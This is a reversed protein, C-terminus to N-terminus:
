TPVETPNTPGTRRRRQLAARRTDARKEAQAAVAAGGDSHGALHDALTAITPYQFLVLMSVERGLREVLQARVEAMLLSHGGLDFFNATRSVHELGLTEAWVEAVLEELGGEPAAYESGSEAVSVSPLPLAARDVKGNATVPLTSLIVFYAPVMYEPLRKRLEEALASANVADGHLTVHAVLRPDGPRVEPATVVAERVQPIAQLASEIEGLEIRFGRLKIQHDLRGLFNLAGDARVVARDQTRFLQGSGRFPDPVFQADTLEPRNLYGRAVNHGGIYLEGSVGVPCPQGYEDLVYTQTNAIPHGIPVPGPPDDLRCPWHTVDIAAETPGYLNHLEATSRRLFHDALDRPLAEGSCIVRRLSTCTEVPETLLLQLMSPVFHITTIAESRIISALEHPDKQAGPPAVVLRAGVMLPWFFEWVSVDFSYPTKQLVNDDAGLPFADQMWLLRNRIGGHVNMVGKPTGTSGSTYIVYALNHEDLPVSPNDASGESEAGVSEDIAVVGPLGDLRRAFRPQCLIRGIGGDEIITAIRTFPWDPDLPVYAGGAKLIALLSVVLEVSRDMVVGVCVDPGVGDQMLVRALRNARANLEGYTLDTTRYRLAVRDPHEAARSEFCEHIWGESTPWTRATDNLEDVLWRRGSEGLLDILDIPQGPDRVASRLVREFQELFRAMTSRDFIATDYELYGHLAGDKHFAQIELDFRSGESGLAVRSLHGGFGRAAIPERGYTFSAQYIPPRSLDRPLDLQAMLVDFPVAQHDYAQLCRDRVGQLAEAFSPNASMDLHLPLTNILYGLLSRTEPQDRFTTPCGVVVSDQTSWRHLVVAYATLLAMYTTASNEHALEQVGVMLDADFRLPLQAGTMSQVAPRPRDKPLELEAPAGSLFSAWFELDSDWAGSARQDQQWAAFDAYQIAPPDRHVADGALLEEYLDSLETLLLGFAQRDFVIHHAGAVFVSADPLQLVALRIPPEEAIDFPPNLVTELAIKEVADDDAPGHRLDIEIIPVEAYPHVIQVPSGSRLEYTTRAVENRRVVDRMARKLVDVRLPPQVRVASAGSYALNGPHLQELFWLGEQLVSLPFRVEPVGREAMLEWLRERQDAPLAAIRSAIDTVASKVKSPTPPSM